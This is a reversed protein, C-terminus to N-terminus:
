KFDATEGQKGGDIIRLHGFQRGQTTASVVEPSIKLDNPFPVLTPNDGKAAQEIDMNFVSITKNSLIPESGLWFPSEKPTSIGLLRIDGEHTPLLPLLLTEFGVKRGSETKSVHSIIAPRYDRYTRTVSRIIKLNDTEDWLNLFGLGKLEQGYASCLRTGALRFSITHLSKNVELIFTDGLYERIDSPEIESREPAQREGRLNKWYTFIKKSAQHRM